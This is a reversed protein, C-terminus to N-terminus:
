AELLDDDGLVVHLAEVGGAEANLDAGYALDFLGEADQQPISVSCPDETWGRWLGAERFSFCALETCFNQLM